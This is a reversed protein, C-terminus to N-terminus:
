NLKESRERAANRVDLRLDPWPEWAIKITGAQRLAQGIVDCIHSLGLPTPTPPEDDSPLM